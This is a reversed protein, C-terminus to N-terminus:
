YLQQQLTFDLRGKGVGGESYIIKGKQKKSAFFGSTDTVVVYVEKYPEKQNRNWTSAALFVYYGESNSYHYESEEIILNGEEDMFGIECFREKLQEDLFAEVRIGGLPNGKEDHLFGEISEAASVDPYAYGKSDCNTLSVICIECTLLYLFFRKM